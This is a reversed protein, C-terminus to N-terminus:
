VKSEEDKRKEKLYNKIVHVAHSWLPMRGLKVVSFTRASACRTVDRPLTRLAPTRVSPNPVNVWPLGCHGVFSGKVTWIRM